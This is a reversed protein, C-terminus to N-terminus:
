EVLELLTEYKVYGPYISDNIILAPTGRLGLSQALKNNEDIIKKNKEKHAKDFILQGNLNLNNLLNVINSEKISTGLKMFENHVEFYLNPNSKWINLAIRAATESIGGFIPWELYIIKANDTELLLKQFDNAQKSCYGCRYDFFEVITVKADVNGVVPLLQSDHNRIIFNALNEAENAHVYTSTFSILLATILLNFKKRM